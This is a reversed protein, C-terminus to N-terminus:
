CCCKDGSSKVSAFTQSHHKLIFNLQLNKNSHFRFFQNVLVPENQSDSFGHLFNPSVNKSLSCLCGTGCLKPSGQTLSASTAALNFSSSWVYTWFSVLHHWYQSSTKKELFLCVQAPSPLAAPCTKAEPPGQSIGIALELPFCAPELLQVGECCIQM